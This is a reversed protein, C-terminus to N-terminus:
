DWAATGVGRKCMDRVGGRGAGLATGECIRCFGEVGARRYCPCFYNKGIPWM